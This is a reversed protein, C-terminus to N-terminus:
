ESRSGMAPTKCHPFLQTIIDIVEGRGMAPTKCVTGILQRKESFMSRIIRVSYMALVHNEREIPSADKPIKLGRLYSELFFLFPHVNIRSM